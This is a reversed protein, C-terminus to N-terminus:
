SSVYLIMSMGYIQCQALKYCFKCTWKNASIVSYVRLFNMDAFIATVPLAWQWRWTANKINQINHTSWITSIYESAICKSKNCIRSCAGLSFGNICIGGYMCFISLFFVDHGLSATWEYFAWVKVVFTFQVIIKKVSITFIHFLWTHDTISMMQFVNLNLFAIKFIANQTLGIEGM